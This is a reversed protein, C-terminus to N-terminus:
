GPSPATNRPPACSNELLSMAAAATADGRPKERVASEKRPAVEPYACAAQLQRLKGEIVQRHVTGTVPTPTAMASTAIALVLPLLALPLLGRQRPRLSRM